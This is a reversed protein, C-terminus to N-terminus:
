WEWSRLRGALAVASYSRSAESRSNASCGASSPGALRRRRAGIGTASEPAALTQGGATGVAQAEPDVTEARDMVWKVGKPMASSEARRTEALAARGGGVLTWLTQYDHTQSPEVVTM